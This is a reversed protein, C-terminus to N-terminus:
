ALSRCPPLSAAAVAQGVRRFNEDPLVPRVTGALAPYERRLVEKATELIVEGGRGSMVRGMLLVHRCAYSEAYYALTHGLYVGISEYVQVARPDGRAMLSQVAKLKEAPPLGETWEVGARQALRIVAEQSFYSGGCGRDGSWEDVAATASADVPAFALENLWGTICGAGDVFGAAESTGMALGLVSKERLSMAGCLASVDGDNVVMCPVEGFTDRVARLYIDRVCREYAAPPVKRFLSSAMVRDNVIVGASSIGVADVRPLHAAASQLASVIGAYHYAPDANEKPFWVVEESFVVNGDKVASVKRDSGGADFGIRCGERHGGVPRPLEKEPPIADSFVVEFPRGYVGAMFQADFALSGGDRCANKLYDYVAKDDTYIRFGGKTWLLNKVLRDIYYNDARRMAATAHIMTRKVATQGDPREVAIALAHCATRLFARDFQAMPLFGPDLPPVCKVAIDMGFRKM